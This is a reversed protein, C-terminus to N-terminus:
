AHLVRQVHRRGVDIVAEAEIRHADIELHNRSVIVGKSDSRILHSVESDDAVFKAPNAVVHHHALDQHGLSHSSSFCILLTIEAMAERTRAQGTVPSLTLRSESFRILALATTA